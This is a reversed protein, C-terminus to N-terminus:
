GHPGRCPIEIRFVTGHPDVSAFGIGGGHALVIQRVIPLGLGSGYPKTTEFLRFVELNQPFWPRHPVERQCGEHLASSSFCSVSPQPFTLWLPM